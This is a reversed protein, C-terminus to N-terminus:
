FVHYESVLVYLTIIEVIIESLNRQIQLIKYFHKYIDSKNLYM